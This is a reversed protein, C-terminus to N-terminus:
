SHDATQYTYNRLRIIRRPLSIKSKSKVITICGEIRAVGFELQYSGTPCLVDNFFVLDHLRRSMRILRKAIAFTMPGTYRRRFFAEARGRVVSLDPIDREFTERTIWALLDDGAANVAAIEAPERIEIRALFLPCRAFDLLDFENVVNIKKM